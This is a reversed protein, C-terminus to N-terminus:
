MHGQRSDFGPRRRSLGASYGNPWPSMYTVDARTVILISVLKKYLYQSGTEWSKTYIIDMKERYGFGEIQLLRSVGVTYCFPYLISYYLTKGHNNFDLGLISELQPHNYLASIAGPPAFSTKNVIKTWCVGELHPVNKSQHFWMVRQQHLKSTNTQVTQQTINKYRQTAIM